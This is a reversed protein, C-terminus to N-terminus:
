KYYRTALIEQGCSGVSSFTPIICLLCLSISITSMMVVWFWFIVPSFLGIGCRIQFRFKYSLGCQAILMHSCYMAAYNSQFCKQTIMDRACALINELNADAIHVLLVHVYFSSINVRKKEGTTGKLIRLKSRCMM